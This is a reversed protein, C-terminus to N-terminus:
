KSDHLWTNTQKGDMLRYDRVVVDLVEEELEEDDHESNRNFLKNLM